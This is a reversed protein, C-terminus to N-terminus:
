EDFTYRTLFTEKLLAIPERENLPSCTRCRPIKLVRHSEMKGALLNIEITRNVVESPWLNGFFKTLEIAAVDGLVSTMSPHYASISQGGFAHSEAARAHLSPAASSDRRALFCEFCATEGPVVLPGVFGILDQLVVPLFTWGNKFAVDNWASLLKLGGFDSCVVLCGITRDGLSASWTEYSEPAPDGWFRRKLTGDQEFLRVNRLDPYDVSCVTFGDRALAHVLRHSITNVGVVHVSTDRLASRFTAAPTGADWALVDLPAETVPGESQAGPADVLIRRVRLEDLLGDVSNDQDSPAFRRRLEELHIGPDGAAVLISVLLERAGAGSVLLETTGRKVLVGNPVDILQV